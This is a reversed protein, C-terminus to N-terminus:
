YEKTYTEKIKNIIINYKDLNQKLEEFDQKNSIITYTILENYDKNIIKCNKILYDIQKIDEYNFSFTFEIGDVLNIVEASKLCESVSNSYARVLGGAGLKIGGFYRICIVLINNLNQNTIVNLMPYGATKSPEGDDSCRSINNIIYAYCYHTAGKYEEKINNLYNNIEDINNVPYIITIFRSKNIIIENEVKKEITRM